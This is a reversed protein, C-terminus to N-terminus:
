KTGSDRKKSKFLGGISLRKKKDTTSEGGDSSVSDLNKGGAGDQWSIPSSAHETSGEAGATHQKRPTDQLAATDFSDNMEDEEHGNETVGNLKHASSSPPLNETNDFSNIAVTHRRPPDPAGTRTPPSMPPNSHPVSPSDTGSARDPSDPFRQLQKAPALKAHFTIKAIWDHMNQENPASFLYEAGDATKLKM